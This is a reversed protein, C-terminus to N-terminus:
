KIERKFVGMCKSGYYVINPNKPDIILGREYGDQYVGETVDKWTTGFDTSRWLGKTRSKVYVTSGNNKLSQLDNASYRATLKQGDWQHVTTGTAALLRAGSADVVLGGPIIGSFGFVSEWQGAQGSRGLTPTELRWVGQDNGAFIIGASSVVAKVSRIDGVQSWQGNSRVFVGDDTAAYVSGDVAFAIHNARKNLTEVFDWGQSTSSLTKGSEVSVFVEGTQPHVAVTEPNGGAFHGGAHLQKWTLGQDSSKFMGMDVYGAYLTGSRPDIAGDALIMLEFGEGRWDNGIKKTHLATWIKGNDQSQYLKAGPIITYLTRKGRPYGIEVVTPVDGEYSNWSPGLRGQVTIPSWVPSKLSGNASLLGGNNYYNMYSVIITDAFAGSTTPDVTLHVYAQKEDPGIRQWTEGFNESRYVGDYMVAVWARARNRPSQVMQRLNAPIGSSKLVFEAGGNVSKWLGKNTSLLIGNDEVRRTRKGDVLISYISMYEKFRYLEKWTVGSDQSRWVVGPADTNGEVNVFGLSRHTTGSTAYMVNANDPDVAFANVKLSTGDGVSLVKKWRRGADASRHIGVWSSAFVLNANKPHVFVEEVESGYYPDFSQNPIEWTLGNNRSVRVGGCDLAAYLENRTASYEVDVLWGGGGPGISKWVAGDAQSGLFVMAGAFLVVGSTIGLVFRLTRNLPRFFRM